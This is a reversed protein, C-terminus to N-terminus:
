SSFLKSRFFFKSNNRRDSRTEYVHGVPKRYYIKTIGSYIIFRGTNRHETACNYKSCLDASLCFISHHYRLLMGETLMVRKLSHSYLVVGGGL